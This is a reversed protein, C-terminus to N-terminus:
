SAEKLVPASSEDTKMEELSRNRPEIGFAWVTIIQLVLLGIMLAMVGAVGRAEFLTVVLFPTVITAGRGLTNVIGSARLRVETPFLEPIYIGFLLAVLVYIPITLAFGVAPLLLPDSIMPYIIGLVVAILSSGIITPKRGWRDATLAGIASGVPAGLAMLLSYSFSTAVSLGQKIFFVPLWTVFGYLLTNITILCVSGVIMRSLLPPAFLSSLQGSAQVTSVTTVPPLPKGQAAESEIKQMLAEAEERRGVAELWRPSEPLNKRMYWVVLAGIGGLVFMARWGFMPVVFSAVLLAVPLGSVVCVAMLGLYKGRSRAPVFETMTSYGVVNEAGLGLGMVFRCLILITMNPAFAAALSAVGFLLLNFQYSFRRGYRDGLFGTGFSGLMMGFFTASIFLANEALTSFGSKLTVGLVTGAIYIDFGDFFMGIGILTMIRYHFPGIPLRDLRGGANVSTPM